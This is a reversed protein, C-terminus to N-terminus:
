SANKVPRKEGTQNGPDAAQQKSIGPPLGNELLPKLIGRDKGSKETKGSAAKPPRSSKAM